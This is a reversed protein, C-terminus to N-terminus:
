ILELYGKESSEKITKKLEIQKKLEAYFADIDEPFKSMKWLDEAHLKGNEKLLKVLDMLTTKSNYKIERSFTNELRKKTKKPAIINNENGLFKILITQILKETNEKNALIEKQLQDCNLLLDNVKKVIEQQEELTPLPIKFSRIRGLNFNGASNGKSSVNGKAYKVGYPSNFVIALYNSNTLEKFTKVLALSVYIAFDINQDIVATEGIGAGVRGLLIDGFEPKKHNIYLEYDQESVCKHKEPMFKFPKINQASLFMRGSQVYKPTQHTGDTVYQVIDELDVYEWELPIESSIEFDGISEQKKGKQILKEEIIKEKEQNINRLLQSAIAIKQNQERWNKTLKGTIADYLISQRLKSLNEQQLQLENVLEQNNVKAKEIEDLIKKQENRTPLYIDLEYIQEAHIRKSGVGKALNELKLFFNGKLFFYYIWEPYCESSIDFAPIDSSSEFGDLEEPVIGFAGKHLNQKGYIFQGKKRIYYKTAGKKDKTNPRKEIGLVNLKVRIRNETNPSESVIKSETLLSGLKVKKWDKM